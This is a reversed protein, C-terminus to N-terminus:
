GNQRAGCVHQAATRKQYGKGASYTQRTIIACDEGACPAKSDVFLCYYTGKFKEAFIGHVFGDGKRCVRAKEKLPANVTVLDITM